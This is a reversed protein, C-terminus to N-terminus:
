RPMHSRRTRALSQGAVVVRKAGNARLKLAQQEIEKLATPYDVDYLRGGSWPMEANSVLYRRSELARALPLMSAPAGWKGHLFFLASKPLRPLFRVFLCHQCCQQWRPM